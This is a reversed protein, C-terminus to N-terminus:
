GSLERCFLYPLMCPMEIPASTDWQCLQLYPHWIRGEGDPSFKLVKGKVERFAGSESVYLNGEWDFVPYNPINFRHGEAGSAFMELKHNDLNLKWVCHKGLDCVTGAM